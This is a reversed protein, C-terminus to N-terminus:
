LYTERSITQRTDGYLWDAHTAFSTLKARDSRSLSIWIARAYELFCSGDCGIQKLKDRLSLHDDYGGVYQLSM